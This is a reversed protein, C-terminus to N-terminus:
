NRWGSLLKFFSYRSLLKAISVIMMLTVIPSLIYTCYIVVPKAPLSIVVLKQLVNMIIHHSCYIVFTYKMWDKVQFRDSIYDASVLDVIVWILLPALLRYIDMGTTSFISGAFALLFFSLCIASFVFEAKRSKCIITQYHGVNSYLHGLIAGQYYVPFWKLVSEYGVPYVFILAISGILILASVLRNKLSLLIIPSLISYIILNKVFWLDSCRSYIVAIFFQRITDLHYENNLTASVFPTHALVCYASVLIINWVFYPVVLSKGRSLLKGPLKEFDCNKYFLIASVFFFVPVAIQCFCSIWFIPAYSDITVPYGFREPSSSHLIVILVTAVVNLATVKKSFYQNNDAVAQM